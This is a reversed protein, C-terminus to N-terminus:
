SGAEFTIGSLSLYGAAGGALISMAGTSLIRVSVPTTSATTGGQCLFIEPNQRPRFGVPLTAFITGNTSTGDKILGSLTVINNVKTMRPKCDTNFDVWGSSLYPTVPLSPQSTWYHWADLTGASNTVGARVAVEAFPQNNNAAISGHLASNTSYAWQVAHGNMSRFTVISPSGVPWSGTLNDGGYYISWGYPYASPPLTQARTLLSGNALRPYQGAPFMVGALASAIQQNLTEMPHIGRGDAFPDDLWYGAGGRADKFMSYLDVMCCQYDRAAQRVVLRVQEYWREDRNNPTDATANPVCLLIAMEDVSYATRCQALGARLSTAFDTISRGYFPDNIGWRVVYLNPATALDATLYTSVWDGTHKSSHGANVINARWGANFGQLALLQHIKYRDSLHTNETTSDGSLLAYGGGTTRLTDLWKWLYERGFVHQGDDARTNIQQYGGTIPKLIRGDGIRETGLPNTIGTAVYDGAPLYYQEGAADAAALEATDDTVGDGVAGFETATPIPIPAFGSADGLLLGNPGGIPFRRAAGTAEDVGVVSDTDGPSILPLDAAPITSM